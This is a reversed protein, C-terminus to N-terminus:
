KGVCESSDENVLNARTKVKDIKSGLSACYFQVLVKAQEIGM